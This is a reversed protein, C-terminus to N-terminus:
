HNTGLSDIMDYVNKPGVELTVSKLNKTAFAAEDQVKKEPVAKKAFKARCLNELESMFKELGLQKSNELITLDMGELPLWPVLGAKAVARSNEEVFWAPFALPLIPLAVHRTKEAKAVSQAIRTTVLIKTMTDQVKHMRCFLITVKEEVISPLIRNVMKSIRLLDADGSYAIVIKPGFGSRIAQLCSLASLEDYICCVTAEGQSNYPIGGLGRDLFACVYAHSKTVHTYIMRTHGSESGPQVDLDSSKEILGATAAVELDKALFDPSKGGVKIYFKDGRLLLSTSTATIAELVQAFKCEVERAIAIQEIGFLSVLTSSALVPDDTEVVILSENRWVRARGHKKIRLIKAVNEQLIDLKNLSFISPFVVLVTKEGM